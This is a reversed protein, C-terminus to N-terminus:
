WANMKAVNTHNEERTFIVTQSLSVSELLVTTVTLYLRITGVKDVYKGPDNLVVFKLHYLLKSGIHTQLVCVYACSGDYREVM